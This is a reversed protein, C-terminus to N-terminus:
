NPLFEPFHPVLVSNLVRPTTQGACLLAPRDSSEMHAENIFGAIENVGPSKM